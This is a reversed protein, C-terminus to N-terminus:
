KEKKAHCNCPQFVFRTKHYHNSPCCPAHHLKDVVQKKLLYKKLWYTGFITKIDVNRMQITTTWLGIKIMALILKRQKNTVM